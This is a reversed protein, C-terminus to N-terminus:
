AVLAYSLNGYVVNEPRFMCPLALKTQTFDSHRYHKKLQEGMILSDRDDSEDKTLSGVLIRRPQRSVNMRSMTGLWCLQRCYICYELPHLDICKRIEASSIKHEWTHKRTVICMSRICRNHFVKLREM